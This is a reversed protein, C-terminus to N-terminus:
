NNPVEVDPLTKLSCLLGQILAENYTFKDNVSGTLMKICVSGILNIVSYMFGYGFQNVSIGIHFKYEERLWDIVQQWLPASVLHKNSDKVYLTNWDMYTLENFGERDLNITPYPDPNNHSSNFLAFCKEDFGLEKLKLAIEYTVFQKKM